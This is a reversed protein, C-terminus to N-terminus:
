AALTLSRCFAVKAPSEDRARKKPSEQSVVSRVDAYGRAWVPVWYLM